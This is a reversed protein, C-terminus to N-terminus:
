FLGGQRDDGQAAEYALVGRASIRYSAGKAEIHGQEKLIELAFAPEAVLGRLEHEYKWGKAPSAERAEHLAHLLIRRHEANETM